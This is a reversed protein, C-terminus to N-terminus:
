FAWATDVEGTGSTNLKALADRQLGGIAGFEGHVFLNTGLLAFRLVRSNASITWSEDVSGNVNIRALNTRPVGNISTFAGGIIVKGDDQLAIAHVQGGASIRANPFTAPSTQGFLEDLPLLCLCLITIHSLGLHRALTRNTKAISDARPRRGIVRDFALILRIFVSM